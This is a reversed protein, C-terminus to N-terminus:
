NAPIHAANESSDVVRGSRDYNVGANDQIHWHPSQEGVLADGSDYFVQAGTKANNFVQRGTATTEKWVFGADELAKRGSNFSAGALNVDQLGMRQLNQLAQAGMSGRGQAQQALQPIMQSEGDTALTAAGTGEVTTAEPAVISSEVNIELKAMGVAAQM